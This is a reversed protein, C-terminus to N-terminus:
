NTAVVAIERFTKQPPGEDIHTQSFGAQYMLQVVEQGTYIGSITDATERGPWRDKSLFTLVLKGEPKLVRRLETLAKIPETWFYITHITLAKDFSSDNFPLITMEGLRLDVRGAKIAQANRRQAVALMATSFDVGAILGQTAQAALLEIAVGPGFGVELVHDTPQTALLSVAWVNEPYHQQAMRHGIFQGILGKPQRYQKNILNGLRQRVHMSKSVKLIQPSLCHVNVTVSENKKQLSPNGTM